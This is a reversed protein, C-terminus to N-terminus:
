PGWLEPRRWAEPVSLQGECPQEWRGLRLSQWAARWETPLPYPPVVGAEEEFGFRVYYAPDGLVFVCAEGSAELQRLGERVLASGLGQHQLAPAVALPGLLVVGAASGDLICTTFTVHGVIAGDERTAVLSFAEPIGNMLAGVLPVLDEDQFADRYLNEVADRDASSGRRMGYRAATM